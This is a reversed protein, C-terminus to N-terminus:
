QSRQGLQLGRSPGALELQCPQKQEVKGPLWLARNQECICLAQRLFADMLQKLFCGAPSSRELTM